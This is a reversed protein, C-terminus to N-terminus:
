DLTGEIVWRTASRLQVHSSIDAADVRQKVEDIMVQTVPTRPEVYLLSEARKKPRRHFTCVSDLMYTKRHPYDILQQLSM